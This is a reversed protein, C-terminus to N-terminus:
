AGHRDLLDLRDLLNATAKGRGAHRESGQTGLGVLGQRDGHVADSALRVTSLTALIWAAEFTLLVSVPGVAGDFLDGGTAEADVRSIKRTGLFDLDLHGLAGLGSLSALKGTM